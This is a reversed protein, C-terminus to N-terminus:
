RVYDNQRERYDSWIRWIILIIILIALGILLYKLLKKDEIIGVVALSGAVAIQKIQTDENIQPKVENTTDKITTTKDTNNVTQHKLKFQKVTRAGKQHERTVTINYDGEGYKEMVTREDPMETATDLHKLKGYENRKNIHYKEV